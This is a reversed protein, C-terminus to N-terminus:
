SSALKWPAIIDTWDGNRRLLHEVSETVAGLGGERRTVYLAARKVLPAANAVAIPYGCRRMPGIDVIDDGVFATQPEAIGRDRCIAEFVPLKDRVNQRVTQIGLDKARANVAPSERGSIIAVEGGAQQWLRIAGGDQVYFTKVENGAADYPLRGSTLVGDVDLILLKIRDSL